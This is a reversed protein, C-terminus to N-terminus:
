LENGLVFVPAKIVDKCLECTNGSYNHKLKEGKAGCRKCVGFEKCTAGFFEHPIREVKESKTKGCACSWVREGELMCKAEKLSFVLWNHKHQTTTSPQSADFPPVPNEEKMDSFVNEAEIKNESTVPVKDTSPKDKTEKACSFLFLLSFIFFCLFIRKKM